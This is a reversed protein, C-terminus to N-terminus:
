VSVAELRLRCELLIAFIDLRQRPALIHETLAFGIAAGSVVLAVATNGRRILGWEDLPLILTYAALFAALLVIASAFYALFAPLAALSTM